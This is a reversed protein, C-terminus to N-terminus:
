ASVSFDSFLQISVFDGKAVFTTDAPVIVFCNAHIMSSLVNSNQNKFASVILQNNTNTTVHGRMFHTRGKGKKIDHQVQASLITVPRQQTEGQLNQLAPQVLLHFTVIASVPNGPLGFIPTANIKGFAFPKGPRMKIKWFEVEGRKELVQKTFDADGVSVGGCTIIADAKEANELFAKEILTKNDPIIGADIVNINLQRLLASLSYYNSNYIQTNTIPKDLTQLEDGTSIIAVNLQKFSEVNAIGLSALVGLDAARLRHNKTLVKAAQKIDEGIQRVFQNKAVASHIRVYGSEVIVDEIPVVTDAGNPLNAGTMIRICENSGLPKSYSTGATITGQDLLKTSGDKNYDAYNFAYGDMASNCEPPINIPSIIDAYLIRNLADELRITQSENVPSLNDLIRQKADDLSLM